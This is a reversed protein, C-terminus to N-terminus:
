VPIFYYIFKGATDHDRIAPCLPSVPPEGSVTLLGTSDGCSYPVKTRTFIFGIALDPRGGCALELSELALTPFPQDPILRASTIGVRHPLMPNKKEM